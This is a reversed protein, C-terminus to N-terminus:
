KISYYEKLFQDIDFPPEDNVKVKEKEKKGKKKGKLDPNGECFFDAAKNIAFDNQKSLNLQLNLNNNGVSFETQPVFSLDQKNKKNKVQNVSINIVNQNNRRNYNVSQPRKGNIQIQGENKVKKKRRDKEKRKSARRLRIEEEEQNIKEIEKLIEENTPVKNKKKIKIINTCPPSEFSEQPCQVIEIKKKNEDNNEEVKKEQKKMLDPKNNNENDIIIPAISISDM